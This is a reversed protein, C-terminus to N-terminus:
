VSSCSRLALLIQIIVLVALAISGISRTILVVSPVYIDGLLRAETSTLVLAEYVIVACAALGMVLLGSNVANSTALKGRVATRSMLFLVAALMVLELVGQWVNGTMFAHVAAVFSMWALLIAFAVVPRWLPRGSTKM